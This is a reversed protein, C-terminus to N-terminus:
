QWVAKICGDGPPGRVEGDEGRCTWRLTVVDGQMAVMPAAQEEAPVDVTCRSPKLLANYFQTEGEEELLALNRTEVGSRM